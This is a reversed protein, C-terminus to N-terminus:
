PTMGLLGDNSRKDSEQKSLLGGGIPAVPAASYLPQGAKTGQRMEPTIDMYMVDNGSDLKGKYIRSNYKKALKNMADVYVKDYFHMMGEGGFEFLKGPDYTKVGLPGFPQSLLTKAMKNGIYESLDKEKVMRNTSIGEPGYVILRGDEYTISSAKTIQGSRLAQDRGSTLAIRDYGEDSATRAMRKIATSYWEDKLPADPVTGFDIMKNKLAIFEENLPKLAKHWKNRVSVNESGVLSLEDMMKKSMIRIKEGVSEYEKETAALGAEDKIYAPQTYKNNDDPMGKGARHWDSQIEDILLVKDNGTDPKHDSARVHALINDQRYHSGSYPRNSRTNDPLTLLVERHNKGKKLVLNKNDSYRPLEDAGLNRFYELNEIEEYDIRPDLQSIHEAFDSDNTYGYPNDQLTLERVNVKNNRIFEQVEESTVNNKGKLWTDLGMWEIESDKINPAKKIDNLFSEGSGSKRQVKMAADEVASYFGIGNVDPGRPGSPAVQPSLGLRSSADDAMDMVNRAFRKAVPKGLNLVGGAGKVATAATGLGGTLLDFWEENTLKSRADGMSLKDLAEPIAGTVLEGLMSPSTTIPAYKGQAGAIEAGFGSGLVGKAFEAVNPMESLYDKVSFLADALLGTVPNRPSNTVSGARKKDGLMSSINDRMTRQRPDFSELPTGVKYAGEAFALASKKDKMRLMNNTEAASRMAAYNDPEGNPLVFEKLKGNKMRQITPFVYWNGDEGQEASMRHTSISGDGNMIFPYKDPNYIRDIFEPQDGGGSLLGASAGGGAYLPSKGTVLSDIVVDKPKKGTSAATREIAENIHQIMPKGEIGKAGAWSVDQFNVPQVRARDAAENVVQEYVGYSSGPPAKAEGPFMTMMQEDITPRDRNGLFNSSFNFRKPQKDALLGQGQNIVRDFMGMNGTIFRGGVPYPFDYGATPQILNNTKYYNGLQGMLLNSTPDAGGTTAAMSDAFREKFMKRGVDPGYFDIFEKELQGMAYWDKALPDNASRAYAADLKSRTEPTDILTRYKDITEQKKPMADISTRGSLDYKTSDVYYREDVPFYPDYEGADISKMSQKRAKALEKAESSAQKQLFEKGTKKDKALVPKITKPYRFGLKSLIGIAGM